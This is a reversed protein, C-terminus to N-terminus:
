LCDNVVRRPHKVHRSAIPIFSRHKIVLVFYQLPFIKSRTTVYLLNNILNYLSFFVGGQGEGM